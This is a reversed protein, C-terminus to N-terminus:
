FHTSYMGLHHAAAPFDLAAACQHKCHLISCTWIFELRKIGLIVGAYPVPPQFQQSTHRRCDWDHLDSAVPSVGFIANTASGLAKEAADLVPNPKVDRWVRPALAYEDM